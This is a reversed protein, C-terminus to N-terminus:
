ANLINSIKGNEFEFIYDVAESYNGTIKKIVCPLKTVPNQMVEDFEGFFSKFYNIDVKKLDDSLLSIEEELFSNVSEIFVFPVIENLILNVDRGKTYLKTESQIKLNGNEVFCVKELSHGMHDNFGETINLKKNEIKVEKVFGEYLIFYDDLAKIILIYTDLNQKGKLLICADPITIVDLSIENLFPLNYTEMFQECEIVLSYAGDFYVTATHHLNKEAYNQQCVAKFCNKQFSEKPSFCLSYYNKQFKIIKLLPSKCSLEASNDILFSQNSYVKDTNFPLIEIIATMFYPASFELPTKHCIGLTKGNFKILSKVTSTFLFNMTM